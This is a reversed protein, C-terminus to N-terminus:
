EELLRGDKMRIVRPAHAAIELDHTVVIVTRGESNSGELIGMIADGTESDV